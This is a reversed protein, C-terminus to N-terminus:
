RKPPGAGRHGTACFVTKTSCRGLYRSDKPSLRREASGGASREGVRASGPTPRCAFLAEHGSRVSLGRITRDGERPVAGEIVVAGAAACAPALLLLWSGLDEFAMEEGEVCGTLVVGVCRFHLLHRLVVTPRRRRVLLRHM